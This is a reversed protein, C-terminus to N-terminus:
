FVLIVFELHVDRPGTYNIGPDPVPGRGPPQSFVARSDNSNDETPAHAARATVDCWHGRSIRDSGREVSKVASLVPTCCISGGNMIKIGNALFLIVIGLGSLPM